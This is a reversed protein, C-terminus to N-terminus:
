RGERMVIQRNPVSVHDHPLARFRLTQKYTHHGLRSDSWLPFLKLRELFYVGVM